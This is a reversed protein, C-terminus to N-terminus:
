GKWRYADAQPLGIRALVRCALEHAMDPRAHCSPLLLRPHAPFDDSGCGRGPVRQSHPDQKPTNRPGCLALPRKEKLCVDAAREILYSATGQAVYVPHRCQLPVVMADTPYSGSAINAGIDNNSQQQIKAWKGWYHRHSHQAALTALDGRIAPLSLKLGAQGHAQKLALEQAYPAV